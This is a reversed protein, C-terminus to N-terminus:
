RIINTLKGNKFVLSPCDIGIEAMRKPTILYTNYFLEWDFRWTESSASVSKKYFEYLMVKKGFSLMQENIADKVMETTMDIEYKGAMIKRTTTAGYKKTREQILIANYLALKLKSIHEGKEELISYSEGIKDLEIILNTLEKEANWDASYYDKDLAAEAEEILMEEKQMKKQKQEYLKIALNHKETLTEASDLDYSSVDYKKLWDGNETSGDTFTLKGEIDYPNLYTWDSYLNDSVLIEGTAFKYEGSLPLFGYKTEQVQGFFVDGNKCILKTNTFNEIITKIDTLYLLRQDDSNNSVRFFSKLLDISIENELMNDDASMKSEIKLLGKNSYSQKTLTASYTKYYGNIMSFKCDCQIIDAIEISLEKTEDPNFALGKGDLTNGVKFIGHLSYNNEDWDKDKWQVNSEIYANGDKVFYIGSIITDTGINGRYDMKCFTLTQGEIFQKEFIYGVAAYDKYKVTKLKAKKPLPTQTQYSQWDTQGYSLNATIALAVILLFVRM